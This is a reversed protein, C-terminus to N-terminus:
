KELDELVANVVAWAIKCTGNDPYIKKTKQEGPHILNRYDRLTSSFDHVDKDLWGCDHAVQILNDLKWDRILLPKGTKKDKPSKSSKNAQAINKDVKDLLVGELISGLLFITSLYSENQLNRNAENWRSKLIKALEADSVLKNFNPEPYIERSLLDSFTHEVKNKAETRIRKILTELKAIFKVKAFIDFSDRSQCFNGAIKTKRVKNTSLAYPQPQLNDIDHQIDSISELVHIDFNKRYSPLGGLTEIREESYGGIEATAWLALEEYGQKNAFGELEILAEILSGSDLLRTINELSYM